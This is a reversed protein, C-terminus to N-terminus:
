IMIKEKSIFKKHLYGIFTSIISVSLGIFLSDIKLNFYMETILISIPSLLIGILIWKKEIKNKFFMSGLMPFFITSARLGMSMFSWKLIFTKANGLTFIFSIFLIVFITIRSLKLEKKESLNPIIKKYINNNFISCIGLILGAGSGITVLLLIGLIVGGINAPTNYLIFNPFALIPNMNPYTNKMYMGILIGGISIPPILFASMIAGKQAIKDNKGSIIAQVYTQTCLVGFILSLGSGLDKGVGRAFINLYKESPFSNFFISYNGILKSAIVTLYIISVYLLFSKIIGILGAGKLGGFIIYIGMVICAIITSIYMNINFISTILASASFLQAIVSFFIGLSSLISSYFAVKEGYENKLNEQITLNNEKRFNKSFFLGLILCGIGGGLNFWIASFGYEFALQATAITSSGGVLTGMITGVIFIESFNRNEGNFDKSNKINKGSVIGIIFIIFIILLIGILHTVSVNM